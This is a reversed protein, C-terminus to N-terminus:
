SKKTTPPVAPTSAPRAPATGTPPTPRPPLPAVGAPPTPRAAPAPAGPVPAPRPAQAVGPAAAPRMGRKKEDWRKRLDDLVLDVKQPTLDLHYETGCIMM